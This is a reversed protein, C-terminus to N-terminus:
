AGRESFREKLSTLASNTFICLRGPVGGPALDLLSLDTAKVVEVGPFSGAARSIGKDDAVVILPGRGVRKARGRWASRGGRRKRGTTRRVDDLVGVKDFFKRLEVAKTVGELSDDAIIPVLRDDPVRHGRSVVFDRSAVSGLASLFAVRREKSNIGLRVVKESKPPMALRGKVVGGVGAAQGSRQTREGKVRAPRAVGRGTNWSMASTREGAFPDTGKKQLSHTHLLWFARKILRLNVPTSFTDPLEVKSVEGGELDFVPFSM